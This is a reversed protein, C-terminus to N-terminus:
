SSSMIETIMTIFSTIGKPFWAKFIEKLSSM